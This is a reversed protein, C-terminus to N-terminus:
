VIVQRHDQEEFGELLEVGNLRGERIVEDGEETHGDGGDPQLLFQGPEGDHAPNQNQPARQQDREPFLSPSRRRELRFRDLTLLYPRPGAAPSAVSRAATLDM